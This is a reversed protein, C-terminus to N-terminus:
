HPCARTEWIAKRRSASCVPTRARKSTARPAAHAWRRRRQVSIGASVTKRSSPRQIPTGGANAERVVEEPWLNWARKTGWIGELEERNVASSGELRAARDTTEM